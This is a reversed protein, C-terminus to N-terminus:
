PVIRILHESPLWGDAGTSLEIRTWADREDRVVAETGEHLEFRVVADISTGAYVPAEPVAIVALDVPWLTRVVLSGAVAASAPLLAYVAYRAADADPRLRRVALVLWLLVNFVVAATALERVSLRNHWFLLTNAAASPAPPAVADVVRTRAFDLNARLDEDRPLDIQATRYAAIAGGLDGERLRANGLNYLLGGRDHGEAILAEYGSIAAAYDGREFAQNANVFAASPGSSQALATAAFLPLLWTM